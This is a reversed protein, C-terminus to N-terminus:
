PEDSFGLGQANFALRPHDQVFLTSPMDRRLSFAASGRGFERSPDAEKSLDTPLLSAAYRGALEM